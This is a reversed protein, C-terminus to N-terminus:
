ISLEDLRSLKLEKFGKPTKQVTCCEHYLDHQFFLVANKEVVELLMQKKEDLSKLPEIDYASIWLPSVSALVPIVDTPYVLLTGEYDIFPVMIGPTHGHYLRIEIGPSIESNKDILHLNPLKQVAEVMAQPYAASERDNPTLAWDLQRRSVHFIANKFVPEIGYGEMKQFAGSCHDFHLHTFIVDTVMEPSFGAAALSATLSDNGNLAYYSLFKEDIINGIGADILIVRSGTVALLSRMALNCLNNEDCPYKKIWMSKPIVGFMAGGDVKFNGTEVKYLKM